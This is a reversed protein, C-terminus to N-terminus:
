ASASRAVLTASCSRLEKGVIAVFSNASKYLEYIEAPTQTIYYSAYDSHVLLNRLNGITLFAKISADIDSSSAILGAMHEKFSSGFLSFFKNANSKEWDFWSHYQRSIAKQQVLNSILENESTIEDTFAKVARTLQVEFYSAASLLLTKRLNSELMIQLSIQKASSLVEVADRFEDYITDVVAM